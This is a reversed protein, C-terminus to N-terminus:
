VAKLAAPRLSGLNDTSGFVLPLTYSGFGDLRQLDSSADVNIALGREGGAPSQGGGPAQVDTVSSGGCAAAFGSLILGIWAFTTRTRRGHTPAVSHLGNIPFPHSEFM